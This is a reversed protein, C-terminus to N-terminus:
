KDRRKSPTSKSRNEEEFKKITKSVADHCAKLEDSSKKALVLANLLNQIKYALTVIREDPFDYHIL